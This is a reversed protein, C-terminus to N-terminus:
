SVNVEKITDIENNFKKFLDKISITEHDKSIRSTETPKLPSDNTQCSYKISYKKPKKSLTLINDM